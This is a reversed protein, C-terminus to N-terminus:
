AACSGGLNIGVLNVLEPAADVAFEADPDGDM